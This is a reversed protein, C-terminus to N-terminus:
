FGGRVVRVHNSGAKGLVLPSGDSFRVVWVSTPASHDTSSSWHGGSATYGFAPDICPATTCAPYVPQTISLLEGLTPLRWDRNGAFSSATLNLFFSTFLSGNAAAGSPSWIYLSDKDRFTSDDTKKEWQLATLNDTVTGDGNDVFRAADCTEVGPSAQAKARLKDYATAYKTVCRALKAGDGRGAFYKAVEGQICQAYKGAAKARGAQCGQEPDPAARSGTPWALIGVLTALALLPTHIM